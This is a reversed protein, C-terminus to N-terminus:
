RDGSYGVSLVPVGGSVPDASTVYARDAAADLSRSNATKALETPEHRVPRNVVAFTVLMSAVALGLGLLANRLGTKPWYVTDADLTPPLEAAPGISPFAALRSKLDRISDAERQCHSCHSLHRRVELSEAGALEHDLYASLLPEVRRCDMKRWM